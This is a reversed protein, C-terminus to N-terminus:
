RRPRQCANQIVKKDKVYRTHARDIKNETFMRIARTINLTSYLGGLAKNRLKSFSMVEEKLGSKLV